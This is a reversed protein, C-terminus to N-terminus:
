LEHEMTFHPIGQILFEEGVRKFGLKEYFGVARSQSNLRLMRAKTNSKIYAVSREMLERGLGTGHPLSLVRGIHLTNGQDEYFARLYAKVAGNESLFCHIASYDINDMDVYIIKQEEVFVTARAKLIEYVEKSTLENFNKVTFTM